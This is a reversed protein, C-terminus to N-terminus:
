SDGGACDKPKSPELAVADYDAGSAGGARGRGRHEVARENLAELEVVEMGEGRQM